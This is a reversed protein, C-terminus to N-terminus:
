IATGKGWPVKKPPSEGGTKELSTDELDRLKYDKGVFRIKQKRPFIKPLPPERYFSPIVKKVKKEPSKEGSFLNKVFKQGKEYLGVVGGNERVADKAADTAVSTAGATIGAQVLGVVPVACGEVFLLPAVLVVVLFFSKM